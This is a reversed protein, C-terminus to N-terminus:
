DKLVILWRLDVVSCLVYGLVDAILLLLYLYVIVPITVPV